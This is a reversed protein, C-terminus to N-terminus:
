SASGTVRTIWTSLVAEAIEKLRELSDDSWTEYMGPLLSRMAYDPDERRTHWSITFLDTGMVSGRHSSFDGAEWTLLQREPAEPKGLREWIPTVKASLKGVADLAQDAAHLASSNMLRAEQKEFLRPDAWGRDAPISAGHGELAERVEALLERARAAKRITEETIM